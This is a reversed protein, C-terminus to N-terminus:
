HAFSFVVPIEFLLLFFSQALFMVLVILFYIFNNIIRVLVSINQNNLITLRLQIIQYSLQEVSRDIADLFDFRSVAFFPTNNPVKDRMDLAFYLLNYTLVLFNHIIVFGRIKCLNFISAFNKHTTLSFEIFVDVLFDM